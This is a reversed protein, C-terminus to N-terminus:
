EDAFKNLIRIFTELEENSVKSKLEDLAKRQLNKASLFIDKGYQTLLLNYKTKLGDVHKYEIIGKTALSKTTRTILSKDFFLKEKLKVLTLGEPNKFLVTIIIFETKNLNYKSSIEIISQNLKRNIKEITIKISESDFM